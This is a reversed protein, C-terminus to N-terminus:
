QNTAFLKGSAQKTNSHLKDFGATAHQLRRMKAFTARFPDLFHFIHDILDMLLAVDMANYVLVLLM